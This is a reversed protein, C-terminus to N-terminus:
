QVPQVAISDIYDSCSRLSSQIENRILSNLDSRLNDNDQASPYKDLYNQIKEFSEQTKKDLRLTLAEHCEPKANALIADLRKGRLDAGNFLPTLHTNLRDLHKRAGEIYQRNQENKLQRVASTAKKAQRWALYAAFISLVTGLWTAMGSILPDSFFKGIDSQTENPHQVTTGLATQSKMTTAEVVNSSGKNNIGAQEEM